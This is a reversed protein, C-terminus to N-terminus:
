RSVGARPATTMRDVGVPSLVWQEGQRLAATAIAHYNFAATLTDERRFFLARRREGGEERAYV